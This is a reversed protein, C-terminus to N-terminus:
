FRRCEVALLVENLANFSLVNQETLKEIKELTALVENVPVAPQECTGFEVCEKPFQRRESGFGKSM